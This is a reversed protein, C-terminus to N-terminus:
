CVSFGGGLFLFLFGRRGSRLAWFEFEDEEGEERSEVAEERGWRREGAAGVWRAGRVPGADGGAGGGVWWGGVGGGASEEVQRGAM